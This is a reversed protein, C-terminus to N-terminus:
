YSAKELPSFLIKPAQWTVADGIIGRSYSIVEMWQPIVKILIYGNPKNPYFSSWENKWRKEKEIINDVVEAIGHLTVYGAGGNDM